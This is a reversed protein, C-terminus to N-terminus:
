CPRNHQQPAAVKPWADGLAVEFRNAGKKCKFLRRRQRSANRQDRADACQARLTEKHLVEQLIEGNREILGTAHLDTMRGRKRENSMSISQHATGHKMTTSQLQRQRAQRQGILQVDGHLRLDTEERTGCEVSSEAGRQM